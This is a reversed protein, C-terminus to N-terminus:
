PWRGVGIGRAEADLRRWYDDEYEAAREAETLPTETELSADQKLRDLREFEAWARANAAKGM